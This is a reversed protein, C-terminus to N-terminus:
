AGVRPRDVSVELFHDDGRGVRALGDLRPPLQQFVRPNAVFQGLVTGSGRPGSVSRPRLRRRQGRLRPATSSFSFLFHSPRVLSRTLNGCLYPGRCKTAPRPRRPTQSRATEQQDLHCPVARASPPRGEETADPVSSSSGSAPVPVKRCPVILSLLSVDSYKIFQILNPAFDQSLVFGALLLRRLYSHILM